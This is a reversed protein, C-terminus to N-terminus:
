GCFAAQLHDGEQKLADIVALTDESLAEDGM